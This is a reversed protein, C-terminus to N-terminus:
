TRKPLRVVRTGSLRDHLALQSRDVRQWLLGLIGFGLLASLLARASARTRSIRHGSTDTVLLNWARMAATQGSKSWCYVFYSGCSLLLYIQFWLSSVPITGRYILMAFAAACFLLALVLLSEYVLCALRVWVSALEVAAKPAPAHVASLAARQKSKTSKAKKRM